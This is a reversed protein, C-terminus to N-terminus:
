RLYQQEVIHLGGDTTSVAMLLTCLGGDDEDDSDSDHREGDVGIGSRQMVAGNGIAVCSVNSGSIINVTQVPVSIQRDRRRVGNSAVVGRLDAMRVNGHVADMLLFSGDPSMSVGVSMGDKRGASTKMRVKAQGDRILIVRGDETAVVADERKENALIAAVKRSAKRRTRSPRVEYLKKIAAVSDHTPESCSANTTASSNSSRTAAASSNTSVSSDPMVTNVEIPSPMADYYVTESTSSISEANDTKRATLMNSTVIRGDYTGLCITGSHMFAASTIVAKVDTQAVIEAQSQHEHDTLCWLRAVGDCGATLLATSQRFVVSTVMDPHSLRHLCNATHPHWLRVSRDMSASALLLSQSFALDLVDATHGKFVRLPSPRIPRSSSPLVAFLIVPGHQVGAALYQGNLSWKLAVITPNPLSSIHDPKLQTPHLTQVINPPPLQFPRRRPSAM